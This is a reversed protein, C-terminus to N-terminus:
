KDSYCRGHRVPAPITHCTMGWTRSGAQIYNQFTNVTHSERVLMLDCAVLFLLLNRDEPIHRRTNQYITVLREFCFRSGEHGPKIDEFSDTLGDTRHWIGRHKFLLLLQNSVAYVCNGAAHKAATNYSHLLPINRKTSCHKHNVIHTVRVITHHTVQYKVPFVYATTNYPLTSLSAKQFLTLRLLLLITSVSCHFTLTIERKRWQTFSLKARSTNVWCLNVILLRRKPPLSDTGGAVTLCDLIFSSQTVMASLTSLNRGVSRSSVVMRRQAFYWFPSSTLPPNLIKQKANSITVTFLDLLVISAVPCPLSLIKMIRDSRSFIFPLLLVPRQVFRKYKVCFM